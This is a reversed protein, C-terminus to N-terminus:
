HKTLVTPLSHRSIQNQIKLLRKISKLAIGWTDYHFSLRQKSRISRVGMKYEGHPAGLANQAVHEAQRSGKLM